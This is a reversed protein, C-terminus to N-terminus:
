KKPTFEGTSWDFDEDGRETPPEEIEDDALQRQKIMPKRGPREWSRKPVAKPAKHPLGEPLEGAYETEHPVRLIQSASLKVEEGTALRVIATTPSTRTYGQDGTEGRVAKTNRGAISRAAHGPQTRRLLTGPGYETVVPMGPELEQYAYRRIWWKRKEPDKFGRKRFTTEAIRADHEAQRQMRAEFPAADLRERAPFYRDGLDRIAGIVKGYEKREDPSLTMPNFERTAPTRLASDIMTRLGKPDTAAQKKAMAQLDALNQKADDLYESPSRLDNLPSWSPNISSGPQKAVGREQIYPRPGEPTARMPVQIPPLAQRKRSLINEAGKEGMRIGPPALWRESPVREAPPPLGPRKAQPLQRSAEPLPPAMPFTGRDPIPNERGRGTGRYDLARPPESPVVIEEPRIRTPIDAAEHASLTKPARPLRGLALPALGGALGAVSQAIPPLGAKGALRAAGSGMGESIATGVLGRAGGLAGGTAVDVPDVAPNMGGPEDELLRATSPRPPGVPPEFATRGFRDILRDGQWRPADPRAYRSEASFTTDYPTKYTDPFHEGRRWSTPRKEKWFGRMDYDQVAADPDFPVANTKVWERFSREDDPGLETAYPGPRAVSRNRKFAEAYRRPGEDHFPELPAPPGIPKSREEIGRIVDLMGQRRARQKAFFELFGNDIPEPAHADKAGFRRLAAAVDDDSAGQQQMGSILTQAEKLREPPVTLDFAEAM